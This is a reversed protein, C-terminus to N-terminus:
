RCPFESRARVADARGRLVTAPAPWRGPHTGPLRPVRWLPAAEVRHEDGFSLGVDEERVARVRLGRRALIWRERADIHRLFEGDARFVPEGHQVLCTGGPAAERLEEERRAPPSDEGVRAEVKGRPSLTAMIRMSMRGTQRMRDEPASRSNSKWSMVIRSRRSAVDLSVCAASLAPMEYRWAQFMIASHSCNKPAGSTSLAFPLPVVSVGSPRLSREAAPRACARSAGSSSLRPASNARVSFAENDSAAAPRM